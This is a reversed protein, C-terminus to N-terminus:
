GENNLDKKPISFRLSVSNAISEGLKFSYTHQGTPIDLYFVRSEGPVVTKLDQYTVTLSKISELAPRSILKGNEEITLHYKQKGKMNTEYNLRTEVKLKTPGIVRVKVAKNSTCTYYSVPKEKLVAIVVKEYEVPTLSVSSSQVSGSRNLVRLSRFLM